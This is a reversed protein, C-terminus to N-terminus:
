HRSAIHGSKASHHPVARWGRRRMLPFADHYACKAEGDDQRGAGAGGERLATERVGGGFLAGALAIRVPKAPFDQVVLELYRGAQLLMVGLDATGAPGHHRCAV